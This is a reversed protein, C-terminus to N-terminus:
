THIRRRSTPTGHYLGHESIYAEVAPTVFGEISEGRAIRARIETSSSSAIEAHGIICSPPLEITEPRPYGARPYVLSRWEKLLREGEVWLAVVESKGGYESRPVLLDVGTFWRIEAGPRERQMQELLRITPVNPEMVHEFRVIFRSRGRQRLANPFTLLTMQVRHGAAVAGPKDRRVGAIVWHVEDVDTRGLIANVFAVHGLHPPDAASGGVVIRSRSM